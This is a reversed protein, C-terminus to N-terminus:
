PKKLLITSIEQQLEDAIPENPHHILFQNLYYQAQEPDKNLIQIKVLLGFAPKSKAPALRTATELFKEAIYYQNNQFYAEGLSQYAEAFSADYNLAKQYREIAQNLKGQEHFIVGLNFNPKATKERLEIAKLYAQIADEWQKLAQYQVGLNYYAEFFDPKAEIAYKLYEIAKKRNGKAIEKSSNLFAIGAPRSIKGSPKEKRRTSADAGHAKVTERISAAENGKLRIDLIITKPKPYDRIEIPRGISAFNERKITLLYKGPSLLDFKFTGDYDLIQERVISGQQKTLSVNVHKTPQGDQTMVRGAVSHQIVQENSFIQPNFLFIILLFCIPIAAINLNIKSIWCDKM